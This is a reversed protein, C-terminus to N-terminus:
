ESVNKLIVDPILRGRSGTAEYFNYVGDDDAADLCMSRVQENMSLTEEETMEDMDVNVFLIKFEYDLDYYSPVREGINKKQIDNSCGGNIIEDITYTKSTVSGGVTIDQGTRRDWETENTINSSYDELVTIDPVEEKPLLGMLYLEFPAYPGSWYRKYSKICTNDETTELSEYGGLRGYIDADGWHCGYDSNLIYNGYRHLLEHLFPGDYVVDNHTIYIIGELSKSGYLESFDYFPEETYPTGIGVIDNAIGQYYGNMMLDKPREDVNLVYVIFQYEDSINEYIFKSWKQSDKMGHSNQDPMMGYANFQIMDLWEEEPITLSVFADDSNYRFQYLDNAAVTVIPEIVEETEKENIVVEVVEEKVEIAMDSMDEENLTVLNDKGCSILVLCM